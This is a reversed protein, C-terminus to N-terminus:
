LINFIMQSGSSHNVFPWSRYFCPTDLHTSNDLHKVKLDEALIASLVCVSAVSSIIRSTKFTKGSSYVEEQKNFMIRRSLFSKTVSSHDAISPPSSETSVILATM